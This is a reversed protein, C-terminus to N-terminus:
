ENGDCPQTYIETAALSNHGLFQGISELEMGSQLLHTAISHRLLHAYLRQQLDAQRAIRKLQTQVTEKQM